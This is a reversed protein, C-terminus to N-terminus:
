NMKEVEQLIAKSGPMIMEINTAMEDYWEDIAEFSETGNLSAKNITLKHVVIPEDSRPIMGTSSGKGRPGVMSNLTAMQQQCQTDRTDQKRAKYKIRQQARNIDQVFEDVRNNTEATHSKVTTMDDTRQSTQAAESEMRRTIEVLRKDCDITMLRLNDQADSINQVVTILDAEILPNVAQMLKADLATGLANTEIIQQQMKPVLDGLQVHIGQVTNPLDVVAATLQENSMAM